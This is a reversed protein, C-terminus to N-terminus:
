ISLPHNCSGSSLNKNRCHSQVRQLDLRVPAIASGQWNPSRLALLVHFRVRAVWRALRLGLSAAGATQAPQQGTVGAAVAPPQLFAAILADAEAGHPHSHEHCRLQDRNAQALRQSNLCGVRARLRCLSGVLDARFVTALFIGSRAHEAPRRQAKYRALGERRTVIDRLLWVVDRRRVVFAAINHLCNPPFSGSYFLSRGIWILAVDDSRPM